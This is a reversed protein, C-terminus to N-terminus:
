SPPAALHSPLLPDTEGVQLGCLGLERTALETTRLALSFHRLGVAEPEHGCEPLGRGRERLEATRPASGHDADAEDGGGLDRDDLLLAPRSRAPRDRM